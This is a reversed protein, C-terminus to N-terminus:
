EYEYKKDFVGRLKSIRVLDGKKFKMKIKHHSSVTGYLNRFVQVVNESTVEMHSMKISKHYSHNYSNVLDPLVELYRTPNNTTFYRWMRNKLTCNFREVVSAKLDSATKFHVIGYKQMLAGFSLNKGQM